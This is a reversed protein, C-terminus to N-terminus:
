TLGETAGSRMAGNHSVRMQDSRKRRQHLVARNWNRVKQQAAASTIFLTAAVLVTSTLIAKM